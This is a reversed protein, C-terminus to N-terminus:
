ILSSISSRFCDEDLLHIGEGSERMAMAKQIKRGYSTFMWDPSILSGVFLYDVKGSVATKTRAGARTAMDILGPRKCLTFAGTFCVTRGELDVRETTDLFSWASLGGALATNEFDDGTISSFLAVLENSETEDVEGDALVAQLRQSIDPVSWERQVQPRKAIWDVLFEAEELNILGDAGLGQLVGLLENTSQDRSREPGVRRYYAVDRALNLLDAREDATVIGDELIISAADYLDIADPDRKLYRNNNLWNSLYLVEINNLRRDAAIGNLLGVLGM